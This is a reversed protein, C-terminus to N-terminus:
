PRLVLRGEYTCPDTCTFAFTGKAGALDGTGGTIRARGNASIPELTEPNGKISTHYRWDLTGCRPGVCGVFRETGTLHTAGSVANFAGDVTFVADATSTLDGAYRETAGICNWRYVSGQLTPEACTGQSDAAFTGAIPVTAAGAAAPAAAAMIATVVVSLSISNRM